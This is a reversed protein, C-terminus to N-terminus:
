GDRHHDMHYKKFTVSYPLGIPANAIFGFYRNYRSQIFKLKENVEQLIFVKIVGNGFATNHCLDHIALTLSHNISGGIFYAFFTITLWDSSQLLYCMLVQNFNQHTRSNSRVHAREFLKSNKGFLFSKDQIIIKERVSLAYAFIIKSNLRCNIEQKETIIM